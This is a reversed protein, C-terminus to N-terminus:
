HLLSSKAHAIRPQSVDRVLQERLMLLAIYLAFYNGAREEESLNIEQSGEKVFGKFGDILDGMREAQAFPRYDEFFDQAESDWHSMALIFMLSMLGNSEEPLAEIFATKDGLWVGVIFGHCWEHIDDSELGCLPQYNGMTVSTRIQPVVNNYHRMLLDMVQNAQAQSEFIADRLVEEIWESPKIMQPHLALAAFLGDVAEITLAPMPEEETEVLMMNMLIDELLALEADSLSGTPKKASMPQKARNAARKDANTPKRRKNSM